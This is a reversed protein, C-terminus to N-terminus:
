RLKPQADHNSSKARRALAEETSMYTVEQRPLIVSVLKLVLNPGVDLLM